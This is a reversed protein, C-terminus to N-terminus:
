PAFDGFLDLLAKGSQIKGGESLTGATAALLPAPALSMQLHHHRELSRNKLEVVAAQLTGFEWMM